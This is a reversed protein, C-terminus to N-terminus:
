PKRSHHHILLDIYFVVITFFGFSYSPTLSLPASIESTTSFLTASAAPSSAPSMERWVVRMPRFDM